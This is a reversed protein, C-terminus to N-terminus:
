LQPLAASPHMNYDSPTHMHPALLATYCVAVIASVEWKNLQTQYTNITNARQSQRHEDVLFDLDEDTLRHVSQAATM